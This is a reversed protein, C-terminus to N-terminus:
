KLYALDLYRSDVTYPVSYSTHNHINQTLPIGFQDFDLIEWSFPDHFPLEVSVGCVWESDAGAMSYQLIHRIIAPMSFDSSLRRICATEDLCKIKQAAEFDRKKM